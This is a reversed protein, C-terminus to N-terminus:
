NFQLNNQKNVQIKVIVKTKENKGLYDKLKKGSTSAMEKGSFWLTAQEFPIVDLAAKTFDRLIWFNLCKELNTNKM